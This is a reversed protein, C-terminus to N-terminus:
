FKDFPHALPYKKFYKTLGTRAEQLKDAWIKVSNQGIVDTVYKIALFPVSEARCAQLEAFSEMDFVDGHVPVDSTVFDDGTNVIFDKQWVEEGQIISPFFTTFPNNEHYEYIIGPLETLAFDRDVFHSCVLIDGTTYKITGASGVSIVLDPRQTLIAKTVTIAACAKGVQSVLSIIECDPWEVHVVEQPLAFVMIIKYKAM